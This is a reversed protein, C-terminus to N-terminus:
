ANADRYDTPTTGLVRHFASTFHGHSAFGLQGAIDGIPVRTARLLWKSMQFQRRLLYQKSTMGVMKAFVRHFHFPSMHVHRAVQALSPSQVYRDHLYALAAAIREDSVCGVAPMDDDDLPRIELYWNTADDSDISGHKRFKVWHKAQTLEIVFDHAEYDGLKPYRQSAILHLQVALESIFQPHELLMSRTTLDAVILRDDHGLLMRRLGREGPAIFSCQWRRLLLLASEQEMTTFTKGRRGLVLLWRRHPAHPETVQAILANVDSLWAPLGRQAANIVLVGDDVARNLLNSMPKASLWKVLPKDSWGHHSIIEDARPFDPAVIGLLMADCKVCTQVLKLVAAAEGSWPEVPLGRIAPIPTSKSM